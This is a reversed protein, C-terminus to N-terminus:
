QERLSQADDERQETGQQPPPPPPPLGPSAASLVFVLVRLLRLLVRFGRQGVASGIHRARSAFVIFRM